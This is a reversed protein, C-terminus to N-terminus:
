GHGKLPLKLLVIRECVALLLMLPQLKKFVPILAGVSAIIRVSWGSSVYTDLHSYTTLIQM